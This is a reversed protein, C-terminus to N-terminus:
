VPVGLSRVLATLRQRRAEQAQRIRLEADIVATPRHVYHHGLWWKSPLGPLEALMPDALDVGRVWLCLKLSRPLNSPLRDSARKLQEHVSGLACGFADAIQPATYGENILEAYAEMTPSLPKKPPTRHEVPVRRVPLVPKAPHRM